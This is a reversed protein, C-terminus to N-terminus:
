FLKNEFLSFHESKWINRKRPVHDCIEVVSCTLCEDQIETHPPLFNKTEFVLEVQFNMGSHFPSYYKTLPLSYRKNATHNEKFSIISTPLPKSETDILQSKDLNIIGPPYHLGPPKRFTVLPVVADKDEVLTIDLDSSEISEISIDENYNQLVQEKLLKRERRKKKRERKDHKKLVSNNRAKKISNELKMINFVAWGALICIFIVFLEMLM